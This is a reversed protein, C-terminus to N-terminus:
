RRPRSPRDPLLLQPRLLRRALVVGAPHLLANHDLLRVPLGDQQLLRQHKDHEQQLRAQLDLLDM